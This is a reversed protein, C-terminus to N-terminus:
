TVIRMGSEGIVNVIREGFMFFVFTILCLSAFAVVTDMIEVWIGAASYSM